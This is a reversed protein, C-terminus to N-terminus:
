VQPTRHDCEFLSLCSCRGNAWEHQIQNLCKTKIADCEAYKENRIESQWSFLHLTTIVHTQQNHLLYGKQIIYRLRKWLLSETSGWMHFFQFPDIAGGEMKHPLDALYVRTRTCWDSHAAEISRVMKVIHYAAPLNERQLQEHRLRFQLLQVAPIVGDSGQLLVARQLLQHMAFAEGEVQVPGSRHLLLATRQLGERNCICELGNISSATM